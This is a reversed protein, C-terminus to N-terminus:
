GITPGEGEGFPNWADQLRAAEELHPRAKSMYQQYIESCCTQVLDMCRKADEESLPIESGPTYDSGRREALTQAGQHAIKNRIERYPALSLFPEGELDISLRSGFEKVYCNWRHFEREKDNVKNDIESDATNLVDMLFREFIVFAMVIGTYNEYRSLDAVAILDDDDRQDELPHTNTRKRRAAEIEIQLESLETRIGREIITLLHRLQGLEFRVISLSDDVLSHIM